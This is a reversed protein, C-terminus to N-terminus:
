ARGTRPNAQRARSPKLSLHAVRARASRLFRLRHDLMFTWGAIILMCGLFWIVPRIIILSLALPSSGYQERPFLLAWHSEAMYRAVAQHGARIKSFFMILEVPMGLSM